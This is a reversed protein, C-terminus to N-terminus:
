ARDQLRLARVVVRGADRFQLVYTLEAVLRSRTPAFLRLSGGDIPRQGGILDSSIWGGLRVKHNRDQRFADLSDVTAVVRFELPVAGDTASSGRFVDSGIVVRGRMTEIWRLDFAGDPVEQASM